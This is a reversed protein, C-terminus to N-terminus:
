VIVTRPCLDGDSREVLGAPLAALLSRLEQDQLNALSGFPLRTEPSANTPGVLAFVVDSASVRVMGQLLRADALHRDLNELYVAM